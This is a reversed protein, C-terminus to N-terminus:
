KENGEVLIQDMQRALEKANVEADESRVSVAVNGRTFHVKNKLKDSICLDGPGKKDVEYRELLLNLPLSNM